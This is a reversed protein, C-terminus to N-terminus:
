NRVYNAEVCGGSFTWALSESNVTPTLICNENTAIGKYANPTATIVGNTVKLSNLAATTSVTTASKINGSGTDCSALSLKEAFCLAVDTKYSTMTNIIDIYAAKKVYYQYAPLSIAALIGVIAIVIMMEILTFGSQSNRSHNALSLM